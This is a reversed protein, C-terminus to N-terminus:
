TGAGLFDAVFADGAGVTDVVNTALAPEQFTVGHIMGYAGGPGLKVVVEGPGLESIARAQNPVSDADPAILAAEDAGAFVLDSMGAVNMYAPRPDRGRWLSARHNVDFSVIAGIERARAVAGYVLAEATPSLALSIGTVHLTDGPALPLDDLDALSLKSGASGSRFYLVTSRGPRPREKLILGTSADPDITARVEVGEAQLERLIRYGLPDAGVRGMWTARGGLRAVGIAVNAEAGGTGLVLENQTAFSGSEAGRVVALAEGFTVMSM